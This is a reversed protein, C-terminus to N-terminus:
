KIAISIESPEVSNIWAEADSNVVVNLTKTEISAANTGSCDVSASINGADLNRLVSYQGCIVVKITKKYSSSATLGAGLNRFEIAAPQIYVTKTTLSGLNLSVTVEETGDVVEVGDALMFSVNFSTNGPRVELFDIPALKLGSTILEDVTDVPGKVRVHTVEENSKVTENYFSITYPPMGSESSKFCEPMNSFTPILGVDATKYIIVRVYTDTNYVIQSSDVPRNMADYFVLEAGYNQTSAIIDTSNIVPTVIVKAISNIVESPGSVSLKEIESGDSYNKLNSKYIECDTKVYQQLGSIDIEVPIESSTDYDYVVQIYSPSIKSITCGSKSINATLTLVYTGPKTVDAYSAVSVSVDDKSVNSVIYGPGSVSVSVKDTYEGIVSLVNGNDDDQDTVTVPIDSLTIDRTPNETIDIVLWFIVACVVSFAIRFKKNDFLKNLFTAPNLKVM